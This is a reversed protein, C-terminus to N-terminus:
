IDNELGYIVIIFWSFIISLCYSSLYLMNYTSQTFLFRFVNLLIGYKAPTPFSISNCLIQCENKNQKNDKGKMQDKKM